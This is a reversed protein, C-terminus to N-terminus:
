SQALFKEIIRTVYAIDGTTVGVDDGADRDVM